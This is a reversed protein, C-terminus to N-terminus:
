NRGTDDFYKAHYFYLQGSFPNFVVDEVGERCLLYRKKYFLPIMCNDELMAAEAKRYLEVSANFNEAQAAETLLGRIQQEHACDFYPCSLFGEFASAPTQTEGSVAVLALTYDHNKLKRDYETQTVAEISMHIDLQQQWVAIAARLPEYDMLDSAVLIKGEPLDEANSMALGERFLRQAETPNFADYTNESILERCSKNSLTVAPALVASAAQVDDGSLSLNGRDLAYALARRIKPNAYPSDPAAIIGLTLSYDSHEVVDSRSLLTNQTTVYCDTSGASFLNAADTESEEIYFSLDAPFVHNTQNALPNRALQIVNYKGYPDYQWRQMSFGGNGIISNEDLGYRGKTSEFYQESCPLAATSALLQLFNANPTDLRFELEYTKKAYVGIMTYDQTGDLIAKANQLCSFTERHPSQYLPNFIRRFAYVFDSATVSVANEKNFQTDERMIDYWYSDERLTLTYTLGDDSVTYDKVLQPVLSGSADISFLGEFLNCLVMKASDNVALQPDLTDPNGVLTYSFSHGSGAYENTDNGCGSLTTCFLTGALLIAIHKTHFRLM